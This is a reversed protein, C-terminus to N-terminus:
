KLWERVQTNKWDCMKVADVEDSAEDKPEEVIPQQDNRPDEDDDDNDRKFFASKPENFTSQQQAFREETVM